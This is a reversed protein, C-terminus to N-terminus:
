QTGKSLAAIAEGLLVAGRLAEDQSNGAAGVEILLAGPSLDQNFRSSRLCLPRTIGPAMRELQAHLKLGLSLNDEWNPHKLGSANTGMVVMLQATDQGNVTAVPRFQKSLDGSADRHLDLVLRISPYQALYDQISKRAHGYSGNYSPYDHLETDHIAQIGYDALIQAVQEGIAIMNYRDDLTRYASTEEYPEGGKKYSETTHTHLILVTPEDITLDWTLPKELLSATDPRLGCGYYLEIDAADEGTFRPIPIDEHRLFTGPPPSEGVSNSFEELSPSFRVKRGTELYILFSQMTPDSFISVFKQYLNGAGLRLFLALAIASAGLRLTNRQHDM